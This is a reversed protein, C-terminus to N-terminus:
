NNEIEVSFDEMIMNALLSKSASNIKELADTKSDAEINFEIKKGIRVNEITGLGMQHLAQEVAKGQPDLIELQPMVTVKAKFNM